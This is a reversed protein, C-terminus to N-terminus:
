FYCTDICSAFLEQSMKVLNNFRMYVNQKNRYNIGQKNYCFKNQFPVSHNQISWYGQFLLLQRFIQTELPVLFLSWKTKFLIWKNDGFKFVFTNSTFLAHVLTTLLIIYMMLVLLLWVNSCFYITNLVGERQFRLQHLNRLLLLGSEEFYFM